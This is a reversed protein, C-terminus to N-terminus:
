GGRLKRLDSLGLDYEIPPRPPRELQTIEERNKVANEIVVSEPKVEIASGNPGLGQQANIAPQGINYEKYYALVQEINQATVIVQTGVVQNGEKITLGAKDAVVMERVDVWEDGLMRAAGRRLYELPSKSAVITEAMARREAVKSFVCRYLKAAASGQLEPNDSEYDRKGITMWSNFTGLPIGDQAAAIHPHVGYHIHSALADLNKEVYQEVTPIHDFVQPALIQLQEQASQMSDLLELENDTLPEDPLEEPEIAPTLRTRGLGRTKRSPIPELPVTNAPSRRPGSKRKPSAPKNTNKRPM